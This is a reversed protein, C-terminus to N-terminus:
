VNEEDEQEEYYRALHGAVREDEAHYFVYDGFEQVHEEDVYEFGGYYRLTRLDSGKQVAIYEKDIYLRYASRKDLSVDEPLVETMEDIIAEVKENIEWQLSNLKDYLYSM